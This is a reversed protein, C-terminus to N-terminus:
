QKGTKQRNALIVGRLIVSATGMSLMGFVMLMPGFWYVAVAGVSCGALPWVFINAFSEKKSSFFRQGVLFGIGFGAATVLPALLWLVVEFLLGAQDILLIFTAMWLFYLVGGGLVSLGVSLVHPWWGRGQNAQTVPDPHGLPPKM